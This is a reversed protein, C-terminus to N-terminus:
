PRKRRRFLVFIVFDSPNNGHRFVSDYKFFEIVRVVSFGDDASVRESSLSRVPEVPESANKRLSVPEAERRRGFIVRLSIDDRFSIKSPQFSFDAPRASYAAFVARDPRRESVARERVSFIIRSRSDHERFVIGGLNLIFIVTEAIQRRNVIDNGPRAYFIRM